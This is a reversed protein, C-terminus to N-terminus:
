QRIDRQDRDKIPEETRQHSNNELYGITTHHSDHANGLAITAIAGVTIILDSVTM